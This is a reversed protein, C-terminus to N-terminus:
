ETKTKESSDNEDNEKKDNHVLGDHEYSIFSDFSGSSLGKGFDSGKLNSLSGLVGSDAIYKPNLLCEGSDTHSRELVSTAGISALESEAVSFPSQTGILSEISVQGPESDLGLIKSYDLVPRKTEEITKSKISIGVRNKAETLFRETTYFWILHEGVNSRFEKILARCPGTKYGEFMEWWDEKEDDTVFIIDKNATKAKEMIQFWIILDGFRHQEGDKKKRDKYGPPIKNAYREVGDKYIEELRLKDYGVGVRNEFLETLVELIKDNHLFDPCSSLWKNCHKEMTSCLRSMSAKIKKYEIYPNNQYEQQIKNSFEHFKRSLDKIAKVHRNAEELRDEHFEVGVQQPLWIRDKLGRLVNLIDEQVDIPQRYLSLLVNTDFVILGEKWLLDLEPTTLGYYEYFTKRM